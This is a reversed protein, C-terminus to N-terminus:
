VPTSVEPRAPGEGRTLLREAFDLREHLENVRDTMESRLVELEERVRQVEPDNREALRRRHRLTVLYAVLCSISVVAVSNVIGIMNWMADEM